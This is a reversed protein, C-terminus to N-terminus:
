LQQLHRIYANWVPRRLTLRMRRGDRRSDVLGAEQLERLHHSITAASLCDQANLQSCMLHENAAIQQLIAFRKPDSLARSIAHLNEPTLTPAADDSPSVTRAPAAPLPEQEEAASRSPAKAMTAM